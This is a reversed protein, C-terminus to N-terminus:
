KTLRVSFADDQSATDADAVAPRAFQDQFADEIELVDVMRHPDAGISDRKDFWPPRYSSQVTDGSSRRGAASSAAPVRM